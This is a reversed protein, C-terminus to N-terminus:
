SILRKLILYAALLLIIYLIVQLGTTSQAPETERHDESYYTQTKDSRQIPPQIAQAYLGSDTFHINVQLGTSTDRSLITSGAPYSYLTHFPLLPTSIDLPPLIAEKSIL